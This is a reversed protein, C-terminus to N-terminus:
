AAFGVDDIGVRRKLYWWLATLFAGAGSFGYTMGAPGTPINLAATIVPVAVTVYVPNSTVLAVNDARANATNVFVQGNHATPSVTAYFKIRAQQNAGLTGVNIAGNVVASDAMAIGNLSLTGANYTIGQSLTDTVIVNTLNATSSGNILITFEITDGPRATLSTQDATDGRSINRGFKQIALGERAQTANVVVLASDTVTPANNSTVTAINTLTTNTGYAQQNVTARFRITSVRDLPFDGLALGSGTILNVALVKDITASGSVYTLGTPLSDIVRVNRVTYEGPNCPGGAGVVCIGVADSPWPTPNSVQIVFEVTDGPNANVSEAELSNSAVNRVTKALKLQRSITSPAPAPTPIPTSNIVNVNANNQQGTQATTGTGSSESIQTEVGSQNVQAVNGTGWQNITTSNTTNCSNSANACPSNVVTLIPTPISTLVPILVPTPTPPIPTPSTAPTFTGPTPNPTPTPTPNVAQISVIGFDWVVDVNVITFPHSEDTTRVYGSPIVHKVRYDGPVLSSFLYDGSSGTVVTQLTSTDPRNTLMVPHGSLRTEGSDLVGNRNVDIFVAGRANYRQAVPTPTPPIPTPTPTRSPTPTPTPPVPTPTTPICSGKAVYRSDMAAGGYNASSSVPGWFLYAEYDCDPVSIHLDITEFDRIHATSADFLQRQNGVVKYSALGIDFLCGSNNTVRGLAGGGVEGTSLINGHLVDGPDSCLQPVLFNVGPSVASMANAFVDTGTPANSSPANYLNAFGATEDGSTESVPVVSSLDSDANYVQDAIQFDDAVEGFTWIDEWWANSDDSPESSAVTEFTEATDAIDISDWLSEEYTAGDLIDGSNPAGFIWGQSFQVTSAVVAFVLFIVLSYKASKNM